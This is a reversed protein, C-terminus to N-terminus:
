LQGHLRHQDGPERRDGVAPPGSKREHATPQAPSVITATSHWYNCTYYNQTALNVAVSYPQLGVAISDVVNYNSSADLVKVVANNYDAAYVLNTVPNVALGQISSGVPISTATFASM